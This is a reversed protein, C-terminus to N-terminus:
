ILVRYLLNHWIRPVFYRIVLVLPTHVHLTCMSISKQANYKVLYCTAQEFWFTAKPPSLVEQRVLRSLNNVLDSEMMEADALFLKVFSQHAQTVPRFSQALSRCPSGLQTILRFRTFEDDLHRYLYSRNCHSKVVGLLTYQEYM